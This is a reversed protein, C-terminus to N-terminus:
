KEIIWGRCKMLVAACTPNESSVAYLIICSIATRVSSTMAVTAASSGASKGSCILLAMKLPNDLWAARIILSYRNLCCGSM